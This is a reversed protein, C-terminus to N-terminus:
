VRRWLTAVFFGADTEFGIKPNGNKQMAEEARQIGCGYRNVYGLAKLAEALVPNRYSTRTRFNAKSVEGYFSGPNQVEIRDSFWYIRTPATSEYTRHLIANMVIERIAIPPYDVVIQDQLTNMRVPVRSIGMELLPMLTRLVTLMDGSIEHAQIIEGALTTGEIMLFQIYAGSLWRVVDEAFLLIGAHTPCNNKMDFFRLSALQQELPRHNERIIEPAIVQPQYDRVFLNTDIDQLTSGLCPLADFTLARSVRKEILLREDQETAYARRPGIRICIHGNHRVPPLLSPQVTVVAVDGQATSVKEINLTPLPQIAGSGRFEGLNRLLEDDVNAGVIQMKDDVGVILYGPKKHNTLDNAFACIAEAFKSTNKTTVTVELRDSECETLLIKLETETM